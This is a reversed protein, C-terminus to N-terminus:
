LARNEEQGIIAAVGKKAGSMNSACDYCQGRCDSIKANLLMVDKIATVSSKVDITSVQSVLSIRTNTLIVILGVSTSPSSSPFVSITRIAYIPFLEVLPYFFPFLLTKIPLLFIPFLKVM